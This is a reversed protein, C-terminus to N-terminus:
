LRGTTATAGPVARQHQQRTSRLPPPHRRPTSQSSEARAARGSSTRGRARNTPEIPPRVQRSLSSSSQSLPLRSSRRSSVPVLEMADDFSASLQGTSLHRPRSASVQAASAGDTAPIDELSSTQSQSPSLPPSSPPDEPLPSSGTEANEVDSNTLSPEATDVSQADTTVVSAPNNDSSPLV